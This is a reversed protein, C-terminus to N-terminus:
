RWNSNRSLVDWKMTNFESQSMVGSKHLDFLQALLRISEQKADREKGLYMAKAREWENDTIAGQVALDYLKKLEDAM